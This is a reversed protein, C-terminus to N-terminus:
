ICKSTETVCREQHGLYNSSQATANYQQWGNFDYASVDALNVTLYVM